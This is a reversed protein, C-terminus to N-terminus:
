VRPQRRRSRAAVFVATVMAGVGAFLISGVLVTGIALGAVLSSMLGYLLGAAVAGAVTIAWRPM